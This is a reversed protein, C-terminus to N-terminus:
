YNYEAGMFYVGHLILSGNSAIQRVGGINAFYNPVQNTALGIGSVGIARYGTTLNWCENWQYRVGLEIEGLLAVDNKTSAVNYQLGDYPSAANNVTAAANDCGIFSSHVMHNGFVGLKVTSSLQWCQAVCCEGMGGIQFGIMHNDMDVDYYLEEAAQNGFVVDWPDTRFRFGESFNFYRLGMMWSIRATDCDGTVCHRWRNLEVNHIEHSRLLQHREADNFFTSVAAPGGGDDHELSDFVLSSDLNGVMNSGYANFESVDSIMGFYVGEISSSGDECYHGIRVNYGFRWDMQADRSGMIQSTIDNTDYSYWVENEDDRTLLLAGMKGYWPSRAPPPACCGANAGVNYCAANPMM